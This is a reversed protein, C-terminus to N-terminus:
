FQPWSGLRVLVPGRPKTATPTSPQQKKRAPLFIENVGPRGDLRSWAHESHQPGPIPTSPITLALALIRTHWLSPFLSHETAANPVRSGCGLACRWRGQRNCQGVGDRPRREEKKGAESGMWRQTTTREGMEKKERKKKGDERSSEGVRENKNKNKCTGSPKTVKELKRINCDSLISPAQM